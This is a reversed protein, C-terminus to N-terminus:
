NKKEIASFIAKELQSLDTPKHLCLLAGSRIAKADMDSDNSGTCFIIKQEPAQAHVQQIVAIGSLSDKLHADVIAIDPREQLILKVGEHGYVATIVEHGLEGFYSRMFDLLEEEDDVFLIKAM